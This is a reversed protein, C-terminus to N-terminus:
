KQIEPVWHTTRGDDTKQRIVKLGNPDKSQNYVAFRRSYSGSSGGFSKYNKITAGGNKYSDRLVQKINKNFRNAPAM